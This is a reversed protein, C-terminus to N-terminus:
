KENEKIRTIFDTIQEKDRSKWSNEVHKIEGDDIDITLTVYRGRQCLSKLLNNIDECTIKQLKDMNQQLEIEIRNRSVCFSNIVKEKQLEMLIMFTMSFDHLIRNGISYNLKKMIKGSRSYSLKKM